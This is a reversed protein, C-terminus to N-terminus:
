LEGAASTEGSARASLDPWGSVAGIAEGFAVGVGAVVLPKRDLVWGGFVLRDRHYQDIAASLGRRSSERYMGITAEGLIDIGQHLLDEIRTCAVRAIGDRHSHLSAIARDEHSLARHIPIGTTDGGKKCMTSTIDNTVNSALVIRRPLVSAHSCM